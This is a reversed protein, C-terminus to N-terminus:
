LHLLISTMWNNLECSCCWLYSTSNLLILFGDCHATKYQSAKRPSELVWIQSKPWIPLMYKCANINPDANLNKNSVRPFERRQCNKLLWVLGESWQTIQVCTQSYRNPFIFRMVLLILPCAWPLESSTCNSNEHMKSNSRCGTKAAAMIYKYWLNLYSCLHQLYFFWTKQIHLCLCQVTCGQFHESVMATLM